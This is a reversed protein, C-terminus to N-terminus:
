LVYQLDNLAPCLGSCRARMAAAYQTVCEGQGGEVGDGGLYGDLKTFMQHAQRITNFMRRRM